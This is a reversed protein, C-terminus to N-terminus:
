KCKPHAAKHLRKYEEETIQGAFLTMAVEGWNKEWDSPMMLPDFKIGPPPPPPTMMLYEDGLPHPPLKRALVRKQLEDFSIEKKKYAVADALPGSYDGSGAPIKPSSASAANTPAATAASSPELAATATASAAAAPASAASTPSDPGDSAPGCSAVVFSALLPAVRARFCM